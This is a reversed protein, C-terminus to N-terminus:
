SAGGVVRVRSLIAAYFAAEWRSGTTRLPVRQLIFAAVAHRTGVPLRHSAAEEAARCPVTPRTRPMLRASGIGLFTTADASQVIFFQDIHQTFAHLCVRCLNQITLTRCVHFQTEGIDLVVPIKATQAAAAKTSSTGLDGGAYQSM